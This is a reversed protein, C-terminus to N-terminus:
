TGDSDQGPRARRSLHHGPWVLGCKEIQPIVTEEYGMVGEFLPEENRLRTILNKRMEERIPLVAYGAERLEGLTTPLDKSTM